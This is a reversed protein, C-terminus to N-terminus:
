AATEESTKVDAFPTQSSISVRSAHSGPAARLRDAQGAERGADAIMGANVQEHYIDDRTKRPYM